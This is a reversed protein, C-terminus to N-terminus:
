RPGEARRKLRLGMAGTNSCLNLRAELSPLTDGEGEMQLELNYVESFYGPIASLQMISFQGGICVNQVNQM